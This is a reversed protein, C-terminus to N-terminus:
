RTFRNAGKPVTIEFRAGKGLEGNETITIDTISLIERSLFLGLGTHHGFGRSFLRKKDEASIGVGDDEVSIILGKESEKSTIRIMTLKQGGYKLTNDILNYFVKEFLPDAYVELDNVEATVRIDRMPLVTLAKKIGGEVNQWVPAKVGLDQYEKTFAIQHEIANAAREEKLIYESIMAVDGVAEKSLELFAKLSFLQNNIDHRTISSLLNLKKNVQRLAEEALKRETINTMIYNFGAVAGDKIIPRQSVIVSEVRGNHTVIKFENLSYEGKLRKKFSEICPPHDDPHVYKSFHQGIMESPTYGYLRKIVPSIYTFNGELDLSFIVDNINEVLERYMERSERLAEEVKKRETIDLFTGILGAVSGDANFFPAKYFIVDHRTGDAFRVQAEYRQPVPKNFVELDAATYRDALDPPSIDYATKGVLNNIPMGIYEEFPPNCGLYKGSIDKYFIPVSLTDMLTAIFRSSEAIQLEARKRATIDTHASIWVSGFEPHEFTSVVALCWFTTGDKRINKVEGRWEGKENLAKMIEDATDRPSMKDEPANVVSVHKGILEGNEYGFMTEFKPNTYVIVGDSTRILYVGEAITEFIQNQLHLAEEVKKRNTIDTLFLTLGIVNGNGDTIPNYLDEYWRRELTTDGYAEILTFSEGSLARDFNSKAKERDDPSRIYELMSNGLVIDAGWIQNMTHRHNENFAIYRYQRDLAFIVVEKPSEVVGKLVAYSRKLALEATKRETIDTMVYNFGVVTGDKEIPRPSVSVYHVSGDKTLIRFEDTNYDGNLRRKFGEICHSQDDPHIFKLFNLGIMNEPFHGYLREIVPSIYTFNGQLDVSFIVEDLNEVLDRYMERSQRFTEQAQILHESLYTVLAAIGIFIIARIGADEITAINNPVFVAVLTVYVFSLLVSFFFGKKRYHYTLLVIPIYYLHMFVTTIGHSLCFVTVIIVAATAALIAIEWLTETTASGLSPFERM